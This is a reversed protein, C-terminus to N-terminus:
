RSAQADASAVAGTAAVDVVDGPLLEFDEDAVLRVLSEPTRRHVVFAARPRSGDGDAYTSGGLFQLKESTGRLRAQIDNLRATAAELEQHLTAKREAALKYLQLQRETKQRKADHLRTTGMLVRTSASLLDRRGDALRPQSVVGKEVLATLRALEEVEAKYSKEDELVQAGTVSIEDNLHAIIQQLAGEEREYNSQRTELHNAAVEVIRSLAARDIPANPPVRKSVAGRDEVKVGLESEIRWLRAQQAAFDLWLSELEARLDMARLANHEGTPARLFGGSLAVTERITMSARYPYEGPKVVDGKVFIPRFASVTVLVNDMSIAVPSNGSQMTVIRGGLAAKVHARLEAPTLGQVALSGVVPFSITGDAEVPVRRQLDPVGLVSIEIADGPGVRYGGLASQCNLVVAIVAAACHAFGTPWGVPTPRAVNM